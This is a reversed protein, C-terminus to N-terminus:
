DHYDGHFADVIKGECNVTITLTIKKDDPIQVAERYTKELPIAGHLPVYTMKGCHILITDNIPTNSYSLSPLGLESLAFIVLCNKM